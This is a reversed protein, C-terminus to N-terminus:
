GIVKRVVSLLQDQKFPKAIWATAGATRAEIKRDGDSETTLLIIPVGRCSALNRLEKTLSIGDMRPMNIDTIVLDVAGDRAQELGVVGDMAELVTYGAGSLTLKVLQRMSASDDVALVTKPM